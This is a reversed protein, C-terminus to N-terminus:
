QYNCTNGSYSEDYGVLVGGCYRETITYMDCCSGDCNDFENYSDYYCEGGGGAGGGSGSGSGYQGVEKAKQNDCTTPGQPSVSQGQGCNISM